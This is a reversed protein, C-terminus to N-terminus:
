IEKYLLPEESDISILRFTRVRVTLSALEDPNADFPVGLEPYERMRYVRFPRGNEGPPVDVMKSFGDKRYLIAQM